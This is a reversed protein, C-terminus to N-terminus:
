GYSSPGEVHHGMGRAVNAATEAEGWSGFEFTLCRSSEITDGAERFDLRGGLSEVSKSLAAESDRDKAALYIEIM